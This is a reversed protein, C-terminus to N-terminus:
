LFLLSIAKGSNANPVMQADQGSTKLFFPIKESPIDGSGIGHLVPFILDEGGRDTGFKLRGALDETDSKAELM